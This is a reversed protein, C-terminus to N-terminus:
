VLILDVREQSLTVSELGLGERDLGLSECVDYGDARFHGFRSFIQGNTNTRLVILGRIWGSSGHRGKHVCYRLPLCYLRKLDVTEPVDAWLLCGCSQGLISIECHDTKTHFNVISQDALRHIIDQPEPKAYDYSPEAEFEMIPFRMGFETIPFLMGSLNISADLVEGTLDDGTPKVHISQIDVLSQKSWDPNYGDGIRDAARVEGDLSAWSWSPARYDPPRTNNGTGEWNLHEAIDYGWIGAYYDMKSVQQINKVIGSIAVLKDRPKTLKCRSYVEIIKSWAERLVFLSLARNGSSFDLNMTSPDQIRTWYPDTKRPDKFHPISDTWSECAVKEQCQWIVQDGGFFIQRRGLLREQLVWARSNLTAKSFQQEWFRVDCIEYELGTCGKWKPNIFARTM